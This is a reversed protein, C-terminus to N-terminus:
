CTVMETPEVTFTAKLADLLWSMLLRQILQSLRSSDRVLLCQELQPTLSYQM